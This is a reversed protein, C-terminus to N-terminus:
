RALLPPTLTDVNKGALMQRPIGQWVASIGQKAAFVRGAAGSRRPNGIYILSNPKAPM